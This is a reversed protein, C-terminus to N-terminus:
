QAAEPRGPTSVANSSPCIFIPRLSHVLSSLAVFNTSPKPSGGAAVIGVATFTSVLLRAVLRSAPTTSIPGDTEASAFVIAEAMRMAEAIHLRRAPNHDRGGGEGTDEEFLFPIVQANGGEIM